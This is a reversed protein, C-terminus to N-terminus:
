RTFITGRVFDAEDSALFAIVKAVGDPDGLGASALAEPVARGAARAADAVNERKLATDISGPCIAHVRIGQPELRPQLTMVLGHVAAKSTGYAISSSSSRVGAGSSICLVVGGGSRKIHPVAHKVALFTGRVNVSQVREFVEVDLAELPQYAGQLIGACTVIVDLRGFREVTAEAMARCAEEQTVDTKVFHAEGGSGNIAGVTEEAEAALIDAIVVKAGEAALRKATAGGIGRAGGTVVVVKGALRGVM